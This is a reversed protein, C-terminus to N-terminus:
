RACMLLEGTHEVYLRVFYSNAVAVVICIIFPLSFVKLLRVTDIERARKVM